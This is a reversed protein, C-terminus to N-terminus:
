NAQANLYAENVFPWRQFMGSDFAMMLGDGPLSTLALGKGIERCELTTQLCAHEEEILLVGGASQISLSGKLGKWLGPM